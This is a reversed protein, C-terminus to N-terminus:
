SSLRDLRKPLRGHDAKFYYHSQCKQTDTGRCNRPQHGSSLFGDGHTNLDTISLTGLLPTSRAPVSFASGRSTRKQMLRRRGEDSRHIVPVQERLFSAAIKEHGSM